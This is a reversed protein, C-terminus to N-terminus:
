RFQMKFAVKLDESRWVVFNHAKAIKLFLYYFSCCQLYVQRVCCISFAIKRYPYLFSAGLRVVTILKCPLTVVVNEKWFKTKPWVESSM